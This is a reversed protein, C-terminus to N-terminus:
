VDGDFLVVRSMSVMWPNPYDLTAVIAKPQGDLVVWGMLVVELEDDFPPNEQILMVRM